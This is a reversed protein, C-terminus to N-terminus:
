TKIDKIVDVVRKQCIYHIFTIPCYYKNNKKKFRYNKNTQYIVLLESNFIITHIIIYEEIASEFKKKKSDM